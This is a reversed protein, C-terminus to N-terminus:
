CYVLCLIIWNGGCVQFKQTSRTCVLARVYAHVYSRMYMYTCIYYIRSVVYHCGQLQQDTIAMMRNETEMARAKLIGGGVLYSINTECQMCGCLLQLVRGVLM